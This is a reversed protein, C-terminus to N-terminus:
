TSSSTADAHDEVAQWVRLLNEGLLKRIDSESYGRELLGRILNPYQSVDKLGTPLSDGVGDFDSGIGVHDVGVLRVVHDFHDLVDDLSAFPFPGHEDAYTKAYSLYIQDEKLEPHEALYDKRAASRADGYDRSERTLFTSGFNIQILGGNRALALIMEDSMNREFGPTFHRASSHSAIVPAESLDVIQWFADDSVHSVDVMIGLRNMEKVVRVGFESLGNWQRNEDYSSDSILNSLSHTLTIYRIGRDYFHQLNALDGEIPSGNEMGMPLSMLGSEFQQKIDDVSRAIAFKDPSNEVIEEVLTILSDATEKSRGESELEAPTYISMFPANLGGAIARPYDFDGDETASSIDAPIKNLRYPVDVHTDVIISTEAIQQARAALDVPQSGRM